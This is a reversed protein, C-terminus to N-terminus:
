IKMLQCLFSIKEGNFDVSKHDNGGLYFTIHPLISEITKKFLKIRPEKYIKHGPPSSLAFSYLISKIAGSVISGNICDCKLHVNDIGTLKIPRDSRYSGAILQYFGDIDDLPYSHWRTIGLIIYFFLNKTFILSQFSKFNSNISVDDVTVSIKVNDPWIYKLTINVDVM